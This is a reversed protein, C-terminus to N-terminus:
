HGVPVPHHKQDKGILAFMKNAIRDDFLISLADIIQEPTKRIRLLELWMTLVSRRNFSDMNLINM